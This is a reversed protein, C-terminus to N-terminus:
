AALQRRRSVAEPLRDSMLEVLAARVSAGMFADTWGALAVISLLAQRRADEGEGHRFAHGFSGFVDRRLFTRFEADLSIEKVISGAGELKKSPRSLLRRDEGIIGKGRAASAFAGELGCMLPPVADLFDGKRAHQLARRLHHRQASTLHPAKAIVVELASVFRGDVIIAELVDLVVMEAQAHELGSFLYLDRMSMPSLLFWLASGELRAAVGEVARYLRATRELTERITPVSQVTVQGYSANRSVLGLREALTPMQGASEITTAIAKAKAAQTVLSQLVSTQPNARIAAVQAQYDETIRRAIDLFDQRKEASLAGLFGTREVLRKSEALEALMTPSPGLLRQRPTAANWSTKKAEQIFRSLEAAHTRRIADQTERIAKQNERFVAAAAAVGSRQGAIAYRSALVGSESQKRAAEAAIMFKAAGQLLDRM